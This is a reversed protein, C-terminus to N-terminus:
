KRSTQHCRPVQGLSCLSFAAQPKFRRQSGESDRSIRNGSCLGQSSSWTIEGKLIRWLSGRTHGSALPSTWSLVMGQATTVPNQDRHLFSDLPSIPSLFHFHNITFSLVCKLLFYPHVWLLTLSLFDQGHINIGAPPLNQDCGMTTVM